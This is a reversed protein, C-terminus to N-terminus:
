PKKVHIATVACEGMAKKAMEAKDEPVTDVKVLVVDNEEDSEFLEPYLHVCFLCRICYDKIALKM